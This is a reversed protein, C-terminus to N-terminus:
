IALRSALLASASPLFTMQSTVIDLVSVAISRMSDSRSRGAVAWDRPDENVNRDLNAQAASAGPMAFIVVLVTGPM